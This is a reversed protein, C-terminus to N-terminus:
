SQSLRLLLMAHVGFSADCGPCVLEVVLGGDPDQQRRQADPHVFDVNRRRNGRDQVETDLRFTQLNVQQTIQVGSLGQPPVAFGHDPDDTSRFAIEERSLTLSGRCFGERFGGGGHRHNIPLVVEQGLDIAQYLLQVSQQFRDLEYLSQGLIASVAGLPQAVELGDRLWLDLNAATAFGLEM